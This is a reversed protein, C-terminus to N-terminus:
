LRQSPAPGPNSSQPDETLRELIGNRAHTSGVRVGVYGLGLLALTGGARSRSIAAGDASVGADIMPLLGQSIKQLWKRWSRNARAPTTIMM